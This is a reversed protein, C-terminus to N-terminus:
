QEARRTIIVRAGTESEIHAKLAISVGSMQGLHEMSPVLVVSVKDTRLADIMAAFASSTADETEAFIESLQYGEREAFAAMQQRLQDSETAACRKMRIYGYATQLLL